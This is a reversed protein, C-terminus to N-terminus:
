NRAILLDLLTESDVPRTKRLLDIKLLQQYTKKIEELGYKKEQQLGKSFVFPHLSLQKALQDPHNGPNDLLCFKIKLLLRYQYALMSILWDINVGNKIQGTLLNLATKKDKAGIADVLKWINQQDFNLVNNQVDTSKIINDGNLAILKDLENKLTWIDAGVLEILLDIASSEIETKNKETEKKLWKKLEAPKLYPFEFIYKEKKLLHYLKKQALSLNKEKVDEDAFIVINDEDQQIKKLLNIMEAIIPEQKAIAKASLFRQFIILRQNKFLGKSLTAKRLEDMTLDNIQFVSININEKDKKRTFEQKLSSLKERSRFTDPGYIFIIM